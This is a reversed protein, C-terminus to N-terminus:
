GRMLCIRNGSSRSSRIRMGRSRRSSSRTLVPPWSSPSAPTVSTTGDTHGTGSAAGPHTLRGSASSRGTCRRRGCAGTSTRRTYRRATSAPSSSSTLRTAGRGRELARAALQKLAADVSPFLPVRRKGAETKPGRVEGRSYAREVRILKREHDIDRCRLARLEGLRFGGGIAVDFMWAYFLDAEGGRLPNPQALEVLAQRIKVADEPPLEKGVFDQAPPLDAKSAVNARVLGQREADGLLKRLPTITNRVTGAAKGSRQMAVVFEDVDASTLSSLLRRGLTPLVHLELAQRYEAFTSPAIGTKRDTSLAPNRLDLWRRAYEALTVDTPERWKGQDLEALRATLAREADRRNPGITEYRRKGNAYYRIGFLGSPRKVISGRRM